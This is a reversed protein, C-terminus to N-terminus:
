DKPISVDFKLDQVGLLFGRLLDHLFLNGPLETEMGHLGGTHSM